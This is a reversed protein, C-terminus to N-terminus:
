GTARRRNAAWGPLLGAALRWRRASRATRGDDVEVGPVVGAVVLSGGSAFLTLQGPFVGVPDAGSEEAWEQADEWPWRIPPGCLRSLAFTRGQLDEGAVWGRLWRPLTRGDGVFSWAFGEDGGPAFVVMPPQAIGPRCDVCSYVGCGWNCVPLLAWPWRWRGDEAGDRRLALYCDVATHDFENIAGGVVGLLGYGPGFGGNAVLGYLRRVVQPLGFGLRRESEELQAATAPPRPEYPWPLPRGLPGLGRTQDWAAKRLAAILADDLEL